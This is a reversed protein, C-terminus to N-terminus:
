NGYLVAYLLFQIDLMELIKAIVQGLGVPGSFVHVVINTEVCVYCVVCCWLALCM